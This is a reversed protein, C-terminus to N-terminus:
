DAEQVYALHLELAGAALERIKEDAVLTDVLGRTKAEKYVKKPDICLTRRQWISHREFYRDVRHRIDEYSLKELRIGALNLNRETILNTTLYNGTREAIGSDDDESDVSKSDESEDCSQPQQINKVKMTFEM